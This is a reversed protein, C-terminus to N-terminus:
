AHARTAECYIVKHKRDPVDAPLLEPGSYDTAAAMIEAPMVVPNGFVLRKLLVKGRMTKPMLGAAVVARKVPRLLRQRLSTASVDLYGWFRTEFGEAGFEERLEVVGLYRHSHPSANFDRLDKNATALLVTGGPRLVRRCERVFASVDRLYYLAEFLIL